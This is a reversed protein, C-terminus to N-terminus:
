RQDQTLSTIPTRRASHSTLSLAEDLSLHLRSKHLIQLLTDNCLVIQLVFTAQAILLASHWQFTGLSGKACCLATCQLERPQKQGWFKSIVRRPKFYLSIHNASIKGVNKQLQDRVANIAQLTASYSLPFIDDGHKAQFADIIIRVADDTLYNLAHKVDRFKSYAVLVSLIHSGCLTFNSPPFNGMCQIKVNWTM